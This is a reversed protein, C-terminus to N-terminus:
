RRCPLPCITLSSSTSRCTPRRPRRRPLLLLPTRGRAAWASTVLTTPDSRFASADTARPAGSHDFPQCARPAPGDSPAPSKPARAGAPRVSRGICTRGRVPVVPDDLCPPWSSRAVPCVRGCLGHAFVQEGSVQVVPKGLLVRAASFAPRRPAPRKGQSRQPSLAESPGGFPESATTVRRGFRAGRRPGLRRSM